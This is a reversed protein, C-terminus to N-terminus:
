GRSSSPSSSRGRCERRRRRSVSRLSSCPRCRGGGQSESGRGGLDPRPQAASVGGSSATEGLSCGHVRAPDEVADFLGGVEEADRGGGHVAPGSRAVEAGHGHGSPHGDGGGGEFPEEAWRGVTFRTGRDGFRIE